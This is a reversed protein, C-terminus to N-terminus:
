VLHVQHSCSLQEQELHCLYLIKAISQGANPRSKILFFNWNIFYCDLLRLIIIIIIIILCKCSEERTFLDQCWNFLTDTDKRDFSSAFSFSIDYMFEVIALSLKNPSTSQTKNAAKSTEKANICNNLLGRCEDVVSVAITSTSMNSSPDLSGRTSPKDVV